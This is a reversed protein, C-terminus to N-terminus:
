DMFRNRQIPVVEDVFWDTATRFPLACRRKTGLPQPEDKDEYKDTRRFHRQACTMGADEM